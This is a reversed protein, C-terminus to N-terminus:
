KRMNKKAINFGAMMADFRQLGWVLTKNGPPRKKDYFEKWGGLRAIIWTAWALSSEDHPNQQKKTTGNLEKNILQLCSIEETDFVEEATLESQGERASKLLLVKVSAKMIILTLKRISRGKTLETKEIDFGDTKLLKFFEEIKWRRVYCRILDKAEEIEEIEETTILTWILPPEDKYGKHKRERVEIINVKIGEPHNKTTVKKDSPWQLYAKAIKIDVKANRKKRKKGRVKIILTDVKEQRSILEDIKIEEGKEDKVRRNHNSRVLVDSRQTKLRDFTEIIDGERDMVYLIHEPKSLATDQVELCPSIWKYSEKEEIPYQNRKWEKSRKNGEIPRDLIKVNAVGRLIGSDREHVLIPHIIFGLSEKKNNPKQGINYLGDIDILRNNKNELSIVSSDCVAIVRNTTLNEECQQQLNKILSGESVKENEIFRYDGRCEGETSSIKHIVCSQFEIM